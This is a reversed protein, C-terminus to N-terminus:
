PLAVPTIGSVGLKTQVVLDAHSIQGCSDDVQFTLSTEETGLTYFAPAGNLCTWVEVVYPM